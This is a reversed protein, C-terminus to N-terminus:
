PVSVPTSDEDERKDDPRHRLSATIAVALVGVIVALSALAPIHFTDILLMKVGVFSLIVALAPKLYVMDALYGAFVFYLSRLGLIAFINSTYIIFRDDTIAYIAPISDVAFMLDSSEVLLLVLFLPTMMRVGDRRVFFQQGHYTETVPMLRKAYGLLRNSEIDPPSDDERLFRIGTLILFAGFVYIMFHLNDLLVGAFVILVARMVIAGLIGWFLVRHQYQPPVMFTSFILLFVFVNDISLSQEVLYGTTWELGAETGMFIYVGVNFLLALSIWVVCWTLAERRTVAHAERHFVGLDLALAGIVFAAFLAWPLLEMSM